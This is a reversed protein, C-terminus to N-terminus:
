GFHKFGETQQISVKKIDAGVMDTVLQEFSIQPEWGLQEKAKTADGCLTNVEAPRYFEPDVTVFVNWDSINVCAFAATLFETITRTKGSALVFDDPERSPHTLQLMSHMGVVM